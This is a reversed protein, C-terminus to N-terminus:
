SNKKLQELIWLRLETIQKQYKNLLKANAKKYIKFQADPYRCELNFENIESLLKLQEKSFTVSSKQALFMLNHSYPAHAKTESVLLAKLLKEVSLHLFFLAQVYQKTASLIEVASRFDYNSAEIWYKILKQIDKVTM